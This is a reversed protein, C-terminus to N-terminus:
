DLNPDFRGRRRVDTADYALLMYLRDQQAQFPLRFGNSAVIFNADKESLYPFCRVRSQFRGSSLANIPKTPSVLRYGENVGRQWGKMSEAGGDRTALM